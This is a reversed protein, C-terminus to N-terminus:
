FVSIIKKTITDKVSNLGFNGELQAISCQEFIKNRVENQQKNDLERSNNTIIELIERTLVAKDLITKILITITDEDKYQFALELFCELAVTNEFNSKYLIELYQEYIYEQQTHQKKKNLLYINTITQIKLELDALNKIEDINDFIELELKYANELNGKYMELLALGNKVIDMRYEKESNPLEEAVRIAQHFALLGNDFDKLQKLYIQGLEFCITFEEKKNLNALNINNFNNKSLFEKNLYLYCYLDFYNSKYLPNDDTPNLIKIVEESSLKNIIGSLKLNETEDINLERSYFYVKKFRPFSYLILNRLFLIEYKTPLSNINVILYDYLNRRYFIYKSLKKLYFVNNPDQTFVQRDISDIKINSNLNVELVKKRNKINLYSHSEIINIYDKM